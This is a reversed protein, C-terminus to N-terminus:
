GTLDGRKIDSNLEALRDSLMATPTVMFLFAPLMKGIATFAERTSDGSFDSFAGHIIWVGRAQLLPQLDDAADPYLPKAYPSELHVEIENSQDFSDRWKRWEGVHTILNHRWLELPERKPAGIGAGVSWGNGSIGIFADASCPSEGGILGGFSIWMHQKYIPKGPSFRIDNNIHSVKAKGSFEPLISAIPGSLAEAMRKMPGFVHQQYRSRNADFWPKNNNQWLESMFRFSEGSLAVGRSEM